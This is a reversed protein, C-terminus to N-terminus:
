PTPGTAPSAPSAPATAAPPAPDTPAATAPRPVTGSLLRVPTGARRAWDPQLPGVAVFAATALPVAACALATALVSPRRRALSLRWGLACTVAAVCAADLALLWPLKSDTGTGLGHWLAIPWSAYALWHVARWARYGLRVRVLSTIVVALVLDLAVTGLGLWLTRYPSTFPVIASLWGIPAYGDLVTSLVHVAVFAVALLPLNRHLGANLLRPWRPTDIRAVSAVGLIVSGTLLLLAMVGTARTTYWLLSPGSTM